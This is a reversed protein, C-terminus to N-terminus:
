DGAIISIINNLDSEDLSPFIPLCIILEAIGGAFPLNTESASPLGRYMPMNSILPYFYRRSFIDNDKLKQYLDDRSLPFDEGVM